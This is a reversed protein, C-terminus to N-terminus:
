KPGIPGQNKRQPARKVYRFFLRRGAASHSPGPDVPFGWLDMMWKFQILIIDDNYSPNYTGDNM